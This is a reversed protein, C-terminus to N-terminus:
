GRANFSASNTFAYTEKWTYIYEYKVGDRGTLYITDSVAQGLSSISATVNRVIQDKVMWDFARTATEKRKTLLYTTLKQNELIWCKSGLERPEGATRINGVWGSRAIPNSIESENLRQNTFLSVLCATEFGIIVNVDGKTKDFDWVFLGDGNMIFAFDQM